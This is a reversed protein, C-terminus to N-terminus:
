GNKNKEHGKNGDFEKERFNNLIISKFSFKPRERKKPTKTKLKKVM